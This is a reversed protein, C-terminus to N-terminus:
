NVTTSQASGAWIKVANRGIGFPAGHMLYLAEVAIFYRAHDNAHLYRLVREWAGSVDELALCAIERDQDKM